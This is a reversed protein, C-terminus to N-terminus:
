ILKCRFGVYVALIYFAISLFIAFSRPPCGLAWNIRLLRIRIKIHKYVYECHADNPGFGFFVGLGLIIGVILRLFMEPYVPMVIFAIAIVFIVCLKYFKSFVYKPKEAM